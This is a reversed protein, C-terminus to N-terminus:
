NAQERELLSNELERKIVRQLVTQEGSAPQRSSIPQRPLSSKEGEGLADPSPSLRDNGRKATMCLCAAAYTCGKPLETDKLFCYCPPFAPPTPREPYTIEAGRLEPLVRPKFATVVTGSKSLLTKFALCLDRRNFVRALSESRLTSFACCARFM